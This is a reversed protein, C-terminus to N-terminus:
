FRRSVYLSQGVIDFHMRPREATLPPDGPLVRNRSLKDYRRWDIGVDWKPLVDTYQLGVGGYWGFAPAGYDYRGVGFFVNAALNRLVRVQYDVARISLLSHSDVRDLELRASLSSRKGVARRAGVGL